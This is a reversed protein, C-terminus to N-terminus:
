LYGRPDVYEGNVRVEFHCHPGTSWGTSGALAITEGRSVVDGVSVNLSNNHGYLTTIGGGHDIVVANGYGGYWEALIVTGSEAAYIPANTSCGIDMGTHGTYIGTLPHIRYGFESTIIRSDCPWMMTGGSYDEYSEGGGSDKNQEREAALAAQREQIESTIADAEENLADLKEQLEAQSEELEAQKEAEQEKQNDLESKQDELVSQKSELVDHQEELSKLTEQDNKFIRQIMEMNNLFESISSSGLLVELYGVSGNKYMARLRDNLGEERETMEAKIEDIESVTDAIEAEKADIDDQIAAVDEKAAEIDEKMEAMENSVEEKEKEVEAMRDDLDDAFAVSWMSGTVALCAVLLTILLRRKM